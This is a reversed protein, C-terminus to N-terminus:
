ENLIITQKPRKKAKPKKRSLGAKSIAEKVAKVCKRAQSLTECPGWDVLNQASNLHKHDWVPTTSDISGDPNYNVTEDM